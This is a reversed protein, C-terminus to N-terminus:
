SSIKTATGSCTAYDSTCKKCAAGNCQPDKAMERKKCENLKGNCTVMENCIKAPLRCAEASKCYERYGSVREPATCCSAGKSLCFDGWQKGFAQLLNTTLLHTAPSVQVASKDDFEMSADQLVVMLRANVATKTGNGFAANAEGTLCSKLHDELSSRTITLPPANQIIKLGKLRTLLKKSAENVDANRQADNKAGKAIVKLAGGWEHCYKDFVGKVETEKVTEARAVGFSAVAVFAALMIRIFAQHLM